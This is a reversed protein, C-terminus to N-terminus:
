KDSLAKLGPLEKGELFELMAGGGTSVHDFKTYSIEFRKVAELTDGGGIITTAAVHSICEAIKRTGEAFPAREFLGMPGNWVVTNSNAIIKCFNAVTEPGIDFIKLGNNQKSFDDISYVKGEIDDLNGAVVVDSPLIIQKTKAQSLIERALKLKDKEYLSDGVNVRQAALFTNALGGGILFVDAKDIFEKLIGIKTDIKAGGIVLVLPKECDYSLKSLAGIEQKLLLGTASPLLKAIGSVSAHDRHIVGFADNIFFDGLKALRSAFELDNNKEGSYFRVNELLIIEGSKLKQVALEVESGICDDMKKIPAGLLKELRRAIPDLRLSEEVQWKPRGLHTLLIIKCNKRRLYEITPLVFRIRADDAVEGYKSLPVNFDVRVIVRKGALDLDRITKKSM